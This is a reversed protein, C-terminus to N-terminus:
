LDILEKYNLSTYRYNEPLKHKIYNNVTYNYHKELDKENRIVHDHFSKQWKFKPLDYKKMYKKLRPVDYMTDFRFSYQKGELRLDRTQLCSEPISGETSPINEVGQFRSEGLFAKDGGQFRSEGPSAKDGGQFRSEGLFAKDGGQFRSEGLFAKDGGQFRSEQIANELLLNVDRSFEKKLSQMIKSINFESVPEIILHVHDPMICFGYLKFKKLDRCLFLEEVFLECLNKDDFYCFRDQTNITIFYVYGEGYFRGQSKRWTM